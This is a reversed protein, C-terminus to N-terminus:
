AGLNMLKMVEKILTKTLSVEGILGNLFVMHKLFLGELTLAKMLTKIALVLDLSAGYSGMMM